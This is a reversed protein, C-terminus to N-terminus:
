LLLIRTNVQHQVKKFFNDILCFIVSHDHITTWYLLAIQPQRSAKLFFKSTTQTIM